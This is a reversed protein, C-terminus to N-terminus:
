RTPTPVVTTDGDSPVVATDGKPPMAPFPPKSWHSTDKVWPPDQNRSADACSTHEQKCKPYLFEILNNPTCGSLLVGGALLAFM